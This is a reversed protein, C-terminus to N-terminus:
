LIPLKIVSFICKMLLSFGDEHYYKNNYCDIEKYMENGVSWPVLRDCNIVFSLVFFIYRYLGNVWNAGWIRAPM